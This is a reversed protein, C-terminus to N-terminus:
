VHSCLLILEYIKSLQDNTLILASIRILLDLRSLVSVKPTTSVRSGNKYKQVDAQFLERM